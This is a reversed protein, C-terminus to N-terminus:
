KMLAMEIPPLITMRKALHLAEINSAGFHNRNLLNSIPNSICIM